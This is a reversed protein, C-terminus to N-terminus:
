PAGRGPATRSRTGDARTGAAGATAPEAPAPATGGRQLDSDHPLDVYGGTRTEGQVRLSIADERWDAIRQADEHSVAPSAYYAGDALLMAFRVSYTVQEGAEFRGTKLRDYLTNTAFVAKGDESKFIVGFIPDKMPAHLKVEARFCVDVGQAVVDVRRGRADEFWADVIEASGDGWRLASDGEAAHRAQAAELDRQRYGMIVEHPDGTAVVEGRELLVARDCFREVTALDHTVFVVTKAERKLRRFVDFCKEQFRADGVALVEDVLYIDAEAQIMSAFGLRVQMGSSYNKLKLDVFRELEAFEIIADFRALAEARPMGLLAANVVVNDLATLEPNFGVGLEIFPSVRGRVSLSGHDPRYIGALCKLMTSKGSGNRGIVGLFEGEEVAFSVDRLAHLESAQRSQRPHLVRQKLTYPRDHPLRFTKWVRESSIVTAM